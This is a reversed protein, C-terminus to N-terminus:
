YVEEKVGNIHNIEHQFIQAYLNNFTKEYKKGDLDYYEVKIATFRNAIVKKGPWTLCGEERRLKFGM